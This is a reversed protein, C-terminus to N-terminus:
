QASVTISGEYTGPRLGSVDVSVNKRAPNGGADLTGTLPPTLILWNGGSQTSVTAQWNLTGGGSNRITLTQPEPNPGGEDAEFTLSLPTVSLAPARDTETCVLDEIQCQEFVSGGPRPFECSNPQIGLRPRCVGRQGSPCCISKTERLCPMNHDPGCAGTRCSEAYLTEGPGCSSPQGQPVTYTVGVQRTTCGAASSMTSGSEPSATITITASHSGASTPAGSGIRFTFPEPPPVPNGDEDITQGAFASRPCNVELWQRDSRCSVTFSSDEAGSNWIWGTTQTLGGQQFEQQPPRRELCGAPAKARTLPAIPAPLSLLTFAALSALAAVITLNRM